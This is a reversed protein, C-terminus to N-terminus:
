SLELLLKTLELSKVDLRGSLTVEPGNQLLKTLEPSKVDRWGCLTM